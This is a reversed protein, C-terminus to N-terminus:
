NVKVLPSSGLDDPGLKILQFAKLASSLNGSFSIQRCIAAEARARSDWSGQRVAQGTPKASAQNDGCGCSGTRAVFRM